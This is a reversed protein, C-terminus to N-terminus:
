VTPNVLEGTEISYVPYPAVCDEFWDHGLCYARNNDSPSELSNLLYCAGPACPSCFQAYTFYPSQMVFIDSDDGSQEAKIEGDDVFFSNPTDGYAEDSDFHYKCRPCHFDSKRAKNAENGCKPCTPKGYNAEASDYWQSGVDNAPIVGYRIGSKSVNTKGLGYDIGAYTKMTNTKM